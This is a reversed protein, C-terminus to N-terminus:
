YLHPTVKNNKDRYMENDACITLAETSLDLSRRIAYGIAVDIGTTSSSNYAVTTGNLVKKLQEIKAQIVQEDPTQDIIIFEDGGTRIACNQDFVSTLQSAFANLYLDGFLHGFRDNISKFDNLDLAIIALPCRNELQDLQVNYYLRNYLGTLPDQYMLKEREKLAATTEKAKILSRLARFHAFGIVFIIGSLIAVGAWLRKVNRSTLHPITRLGAEKAQEYNLLYLSKNIISALEPNSNHVGLYIFSDSATIGKKIINDYGLEKIYFEAVTPNEIFYDAKNQNVLEISQQINKTPIITADTLNKELLTEHWFGNIVAIRKGELGYIDNVIQSDSKGYILDIEEIVPDTFIFHEMREKTKAINIIDIEGCEARSYLTDFDGYQYSFNIGLQHEFFAFIEGAVGLYQGDQYYDFPLYDKVVAVSASGHDMLWQYELENLNLIKYNYLIRARDIATQIDAQRKELIKDVIGVLIAQESKASLTMENDVNHLDAIKTLQSYAMLYELEIGGTPTVFGAIEGAILGNIVEPHSEYEVIDINLQHYTHTFLEISIDSKFFGISQEEMDGLSKLKGNKLAIFSYPAIEIPHSFDMFLQRKATQNAGYLLDVEDSLFANYVQRWSYYGKVEVKVNMEDALIKAVDHIYGMKQDLYFFSSRGFFDSTGITITKNQHATLWEKEAKTWQSDEAALPTMWTSLILITIIILAIRRYM